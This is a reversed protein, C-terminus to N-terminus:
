KSSRKVFLYEIDLNYLIMGRKINIYFFMLRFIMVKEVEDIIDTITKIYEYKISHNGNNNIMM